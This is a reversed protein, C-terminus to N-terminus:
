DNTAYKIVSDILKIRETLIPTQIRIYPVNNWELLMAIGHTITWATQLDMHDRVGDDEMLDPHPDILFVRADKHKLTDIYRSSIKYQEAANTSFLASYVLNDPGRDFVYGQYVDDIDEFFGIKQIAEYHRLRHAHGLSSQFRDAETANARLSVLDIKEKEIIERAAEKVLFLTHRNAVENALTTKGCSHSGCLYIRIM